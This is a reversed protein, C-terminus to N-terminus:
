IDLFHYWLVAAIYLTIDPYWSIKLLIGFPTEQLLHSNFHTRHHSWLFNLCCNVPYRCRIANFPIDPHLIDQKAYRLLKVREVLVQSRIANSWASQYRSLRSIYVSTNIVIIITTIIITHESINTTFGYIPFSVLSSTIFNFSFGVIVRSSLGETTDLIGQQWWWWWWWWVWVGLLVLWEWGWVKEVFM